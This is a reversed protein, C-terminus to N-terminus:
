QNSSNSPEAEKSVVAQDESDSHSNVIQYINHVVHDTVNPLFEPFHDSPSLTFESLISPPHDIRDHIFSDEDFTVHDTEEVTERSFNFVKFAKSVSSYGLFM